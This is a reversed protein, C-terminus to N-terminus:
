ILITEQIKWCENYWTILRDWNEKLIAPTDKDKGEMNIFHEDAAAQCEEQFEELFMDCMIEQLIERESSTYIVEGFHTCVLSYIKM